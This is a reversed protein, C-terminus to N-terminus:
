KEVTFKYICQSHYTQGPELVVSPFQPQNPSDPYHQTELCVAARRNYVIGHKGKVKGNLFNGTYVQIGPENTYVEVSIGTAPCTAKAALQTVDGQTNLVWNHDFGNGLKVQEFDTQNIDQGIPKATTFDMPTDKVSDISGLPILKANVPTYNDANIYLVHDSNDKLPDGSLNFYSHNTMNIVTTKDTTASYQIDIANDDTLTFTVQVQVNGPFKMDGDPSLLSLQVKNDSLQKGDFVKYQWGQPGGHLCNDGDNANLQFVQDNLTFQAGAIRNAYRGISAGFDSANNLYDDINDFALVVDRDVGNKDALNVSVIRGGFNTICVEMNNKNTLTYLHTQKGDINTEFKQPDLGSQTLVPKTEQQNCACVAIAMFFALFINKKM